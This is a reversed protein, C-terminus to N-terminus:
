PRDICREDGGQARVMAALASLGRGDKMAQEAAERGAGRDAAAGAWWLLEGALATALLALDGPGGGRLTEIAEIMELANGVARGLPQSMDTVFAAMERGAARGIRTML